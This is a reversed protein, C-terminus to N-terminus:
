WPFTKYFDISVRSFIKLNAYVAPGGSLRVGEEVTKYSVVIHLYDESVRTVRTFCIM